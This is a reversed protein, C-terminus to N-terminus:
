EYYDKEEGVDKNLQEYYYELHKYYNRQKLVDGNQKIVERIIDRAMRAQEIDDYDYIPSQQTM